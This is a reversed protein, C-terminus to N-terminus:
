RFDDSSRWSKQCGFDGERGGFAVSGHGEKRCLKRYDFGFGGSTIQLWRFVALKESMRFGRGEGLHWAAM